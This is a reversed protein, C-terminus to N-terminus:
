NILIVMNEIKTQIRTSAHMNNFGLYIDNNGYQQESEM